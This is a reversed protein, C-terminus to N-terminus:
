TDFGEPIFEDGFTAQGLRLKEQREAFGYTDALLKAYAPAVKAAAKVEAATIVKVGSKNAQALAASCAKIAKKSDAPQPFKFEAMEKLSRAMLKRSVVIEPNWIPM